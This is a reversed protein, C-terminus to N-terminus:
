FSNRNSNYICIGAIAGIIGITILGPIKFVYIGLFYVVIILILAIIVHVIWELKPNIKFVGFIKNSLKYKKDIIGCIVAFIIASVVFVLAELINQILLIKDM